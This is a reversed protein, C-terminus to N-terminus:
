LYCTKSGKLLLMGLNTHYLTKMYYRYRHSHWFFTSTYINYLIIGTVPDCIVYDCLM